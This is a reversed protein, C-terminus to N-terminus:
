EEEDRRVFCNILAFIIGLVLFAGAPSIFLKNPIFVNSPLIQYKAIYGTLHSIKDMLTITNSGIFERILGVLSLIIIFFLGKKLAEILSKGVKNDFAYFLTREIILVNVSVISLYIGLAKYLDNIYNHLIFGWITTIVAGIIFTIYIRLKHSIVKSLLSAILMSIVLSIFIIIGLIYSEEFTTAVALAPGLGLFVLLYSKNQILKEFSGLKSDSM